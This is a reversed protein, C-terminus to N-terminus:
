TKFDTFENLLNEIESQEKRLIPPIEKVITKVEDLNMIQKNSDLAISHAKLDRKLSEVFIRLLTQYDLKIALDIAKSHYYISYTYSKEKSTFIAITRSIDFELSLIKTEIEDFKNEVIKSINKVQTNEFEKQKADIAEKVKEQIYKNAGSKNWWWTAGIFLVITGVIVTLFITHNSTEQQLITKYLDIAEQKTITTVTDIVLKKQHIISDTIDM